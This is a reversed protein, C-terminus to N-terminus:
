PGGQHNTALRMSFVTRAKRVAYIAYFGAYGAIMAVGIAWIGLPYYLAVATAAYVAGAVGDAIHWVVHNTLTYLQLHMAGYLHILLAGSFTFWFALGIFRTETGSIHLYWALSPGALLVGAIFTSTALIIGRRALSNLPALQHLSYLSAMLPLKSYFPARSFQGIQDIIAYALLYSAVLSPAAFQALVPGTLRIVSVNLLIGLGSRWASQWMASLLDRDFAGNFGASVQRGHRRVMIGNGLITILTWAQFAVALGLLRGGFLIVAVMSAASLLNTLTEWRRLSPIADIGQLYASFQAGWLKAAAGLLIVGWALWAAGPDAVAVVPRVLLATGLAGLLGATVLALMTYILCNTRQINAVLPWNPGSRDKDKMPTRSGVDSAGGVAYAIYRSTTVTFGFDVMFVFQALTLFLLWLAVEPASMYVLILPLPAAFKVITSGQFAWTTVTRSNWIRSKLWAKRAAHRTKASM